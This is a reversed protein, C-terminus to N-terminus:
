RGIEKGSTCSVLTVGPAIVEKSDPTDNGETNVKPKLARIFTSEKSRGKVFEILDKAMDNMINQRSFKSIFKKRIEFDVFGNFKKYKRSFDEIDCPHFIMSDPLHEELFEKAYGDVGAIIPKCMAAYEFIKSPLVKKFAEYNNLQLFLVDSQKYFAILEKRNIPSLIKINKLHSTREKLISERGGSGIIYFEINQYKEVIEPVIKELGQGDGINGTYTFIIKGHPLFRKQHNNYQIFDDDIGNTFFSYNKPYKKQFYDSFGRSVLNIKNTSSITYKEILHFVPIFCKLKSKKLVSGLTDVFIDRIDLYLLVGKRRSLFAGLFATFLRSSTSFIVDYERSRVFKLTKIFYVLFSRAQDFFGSQHTPIKIRKVLVNDIKEIEPTEIKFSNYRNPSTTVVEILDESTIQKKLAKVFPVVRFTCACLDPEYYFSLILIKM